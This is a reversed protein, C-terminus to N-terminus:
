SIARNWLQDVRIQESDAITWRQDFNMVNEGSIDFFVFENVRSKRKGLEYKM